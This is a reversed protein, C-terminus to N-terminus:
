IDIIVPIRYNLSDGPKAYEQQSYRPQVQDSPSSLTYTVFRKPAPKILVTAYYKGDESWRGWSSYYCTDQGDTTLQTLIATSDREDSLYLNNDKHIVFTNKLVPSEARGDKEDLVEMWHHGNGDRHPHRRPRPDSIQTKDGTKGDVSFYITSDGNYVSYWFNGDKGKHAEVNGNKMKWHYKSNIAFANKYKEVMDQASAYVTTASLIFFLIYNKM